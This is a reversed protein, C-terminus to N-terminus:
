FKEGLRYYKSGDNGLLILYTDEKQITLFETGKRITNSTNYMIKIVKNELLWRGGATLENPFDGWTVNMTGDKNFNYSQLKLPASWTSSVLYDILDDTDNLINEVDTKSSMECSNIFGVIILIIFFLKLIKNFKSSKDM